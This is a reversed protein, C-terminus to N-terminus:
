LVHAKKRTDSPSTYYQADAGAAAPAAAAREKNMEVISDVLHARQQVFAKFDAAKPCASAPHFATGDRGAGCLHCARGGGKDPPVGDPPKKKKNNCEDFSHGYFEKGLNELCWSCPPLSTRPALSALHDDYDAKVERKTEDDKPASSTLTTSQSSPM